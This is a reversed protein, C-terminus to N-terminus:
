LLTECKCKWHYMYTVFDKFVHGTFPTLPLTPAYRQKCRSRIWGAYIDNRQHASQYHSLGITAWKWISLPSMKLGRGDSIKLNQTKRASWIELLPIGINTNGMSRLPKACFVKGGVRTKSTPQNITAWFRYHSVKMHKCTVVQSVGPWFQKVWFKAEPGYRRCPYAFNM